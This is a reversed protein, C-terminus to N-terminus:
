GDHHHIGETKEQEYISPTYVISYESLQNYPGSRYGEADIEYVYM